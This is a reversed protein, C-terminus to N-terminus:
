TNITIPTGDTKTIITGDTKRWYEIDTPMKRQVFVLAYFPPKYDVTDILDHDHSQLNSHYGAYKNYASAIVSGDHDHTEASLTYNLDATNDGTTTTTGDASLIIFCDTLDPTGNTGDCVLWGEPVDFSDYMAILDETIDFASAKTWARVFARKIDTTFSGSLTHDHGAHYVYRYNNAYAGIEAFQGQYGHAHEGSIAVVKDGTAAAATETDNAARLFRESTVFASLGTPATNSKSFVVSNAPLQDHGYMAQLLKVNQYAPLYEILTKHSHLGASQNGTTTLGYQMDEGTAAVFNTVNTGTHAGDMSSEGIIAATGGIDEPDYAGGAGILFKGISERGYPSWGEPVTSGSWGVILGTPIPPVVEPGISGDGEVYVKGQEFDYSIGRVYLHSQTPAKLSSDTFVIKQGPTPIDATLPMALYIKPKQNYVMVRRVYDRVSTRKWHFGNISVDDGYKYQSVVSIDTQSELVYAGIDGTTSKRTIVNSRVIAAPTQREYTSPFFEYETLRITATQANMDILRLTTGDLWFLHTMTACLEDLFELTTRQSTEWYGVSPSAARAYGGDYTLGLRTCAWSVVEALDDGSSGTGSITVQGTPATDLYFGDEAANLFAKSSYPVGDVYVRWYGAKYTHGTADSIYEMDCRFTNMDLVSIVTTKAEYPPAEITVVDGASFGHLTSEVYCRGVGDDWISTIARARTGTIGGLHYQQYGEVDAIRVPTEHIVEGFARPLSITNNEHDLAEDLLPSDIDEAYLGYEVGERDLATLYGTGSFLLVADAVTSDTYYVSIDVTQEPPWDTSTTDMCVPWDSSFLDPSFSIAGYSM